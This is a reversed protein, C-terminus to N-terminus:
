PVGFTDFILSVEAPMFVRRSQEALEATTSSERLLDKMRRWASRPAIAPFYMKALEMRGYTKIEKDMPAFNCFFVSIDLHKTLFLASLELLNCYTGMLPNLLSLVKCMQQFIRVKAM